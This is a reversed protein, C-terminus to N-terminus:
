FDSTDIGLKDLHDLLRTFFVVKADMEDYGYAEHLLGRTSLQSLMHEQERRAATEEEWAQERQRRKEAERQRSSM